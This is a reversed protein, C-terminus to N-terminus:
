ENNQNIKKLKELRVWKDKRIVSGFTIKGNQDYSVEVIYEVMINSDKQQMKVTYKEDM